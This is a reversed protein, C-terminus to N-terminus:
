GRDARIGERSWQSPVGQLWSKSWLRLVIGSPVGLAGLGGLGSPAGRCGVARVFTGAWM